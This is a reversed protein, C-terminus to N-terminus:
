RAQGRRTCATTALRRRRRTGRSCWAGSWAAGARWSTCGCPGRTGRRPRERRRTRSRASPRRSTPRRCSRRTHTGRLVELCGTLVRHTGKLAGQYRQTRSRASPRRSPPRRCSRCTHTGRLVRHAGRPVQALAKHSGRSQRTLVELTGKSYGLRVRLVHACHSARNLDYLCGLLTRARLTSVRYKAAYDSAPTSM